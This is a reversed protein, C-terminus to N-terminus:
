RFKLDPPFNRVLDDDTYPKGDPGDYILQFACGSSSIVHIRIGPSTPSSRFGDPGIAPHDKGILSLKQRNSGALQAVTEQWTGNPLSHVSTWYDILMQGVISTQEQPTINPKLLANLPSPPLGAAGDPVPVGAQLAPDHPDHKYARQSRLREILGSLGDREGLVLGIFLALLVLGAVLIVSRFRKM